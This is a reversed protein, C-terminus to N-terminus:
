QERQSHFKELYPAILSDLKFLWLAVASSTQAMTPFCRIIEEMFTNNSGLDNIEFLRDENIAAVFDALVQLLEALSSTRRLRKIWLRHASKRWAGLLTDEPMVSEIAHIAAKLAQLNSPLIRYKPFSCDGKETCTARHITFKEELDFDLEFTTHCIKCHKEDRWFLDHCIECKALTDLYSRKSYRVANLCTYFDKWIWTDLDQLRSLKSKLEEGKKGVELFIAGGLAMPDKTIENLSLNDVDSVPSSSDERTIHSTDLESQDCQASRRIQAVELLRNSMEQCLPAERKELSEILVAERRGRDDLVSLLAHLIEETDIVEWHGDESSEFYVRRHGPDYDNCPGLFLWYRNYRRDSGLFISQMPHHNDLEGEKARNGSTSLAESRKSLSISSSDVPRTDTTTMSQTHGDYVWSPRPISYENASARKIKAGSGHNLKPAHVVIAKAPDEMRISPASSLLDVLAVLASLMQEISLDSYEGEMLGLLWVEGPHSEDIENYVTQRRNKSRRHKWSTLKQRSSNELECESDDSSSCTADDCSHYDVSGSDDTDSQIDDVEKTNIRLRYASSSIKEFLTIDSSLTSCILDEVEGTSSALNLKAIQFSKALDAVKLGNNGQESLLRFLEGKLTGLRLGYKLRLDMEKSLAERQWAGKKSGFGASVLVQHLIETWTLSNLSKKWFDLVFEQSEVSHLLALFKCSISSHRVIGTKLETEIDSLLLKLLSLHIKGLLLSDKDHFAQAFEDLTFPCIDVTVSHTYLFHFVKFLKKVIQPSSIWPQTGFPQKMKVTNPPFKPLLDKCLSCGHQPNTSCHDSCAVPNPGAQMERLELEEDDVLMAYLDHREQSPVGELSLKCKERHPLMQNETKKSRVERRKVTAKRKEQLKKALTREKMKSVLQQPRKKRVVPKQKVPKQPVCTLPDLSPIDCSGPNTARWVTMLGKGIGHRKQKAAGGNVNTHDSVKRKKTVTLDVMLGKGIGHINQKAAGGNVDANNSVKRKKTVRSDTMLGKGIGHKKLKAAEGHIDTHNSVKRMIAVTESDQLSDPVRLTFLPTLSGQTGKFYSFGKSPLSDFEVGLPPGDKRFIKKLIYDPALLEQPVGRQKNKAIRNEAKQKLRLSSPTACTKRNAALLKSMSGVSAARTGNRECHIPLEKSLRPPMFRGNKSKDRRRKECFWLRVEKLTLGLVAACDEMEEHTPYKQESYSKELVQYQLASKKKM